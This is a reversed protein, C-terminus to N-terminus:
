RAPPVLNMEEILHYFESGPKVHATHFGFREAGRLNQESDDFFVTDDPVIRLHGVTYEFIEPSPKLAKAEYSLIIGNFYDHVDKGDKKFEAAIKSNWMLPNTNSLLYIDFGRARLDELHRLREVPIGVLFDNFAKDIQADSVNGPILARVQRHFEPIDIFGQELEGFPGKQGYEGFFAKTDPLGLRIFADVCRQKEIDFIVGGLDFLLNKIKM